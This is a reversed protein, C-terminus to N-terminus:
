WTAWTRCSTIRLLPVHSSAPFRSLGDTLPHADRLSSVDCKNLPCQTLHMLYNVAHELVTAKDTKDELGPVLFRLMQCSRKM